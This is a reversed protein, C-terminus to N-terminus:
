GIVKWNAVAVDASAVRRRMDRTFIVDRTTQAATKHVSLGFGDAAFVKSVPVVSKREAKPNTCAATIIPSLRGDAGPWIHHLGPRNELWICKEARIMRGAQDDGPLLGDV